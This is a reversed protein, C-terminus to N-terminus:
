SADMSEIQMTWIILLWGTMRCKCNFKLLASREVFGKKTEDQTGVNQDSPIYVEVLRYPFNRGNTLGMM